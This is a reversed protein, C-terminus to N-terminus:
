SFLGFVLFVGAAALLALLGLGIPEVLGGAKYATAGISGVTLLVLGMAVVSASAGMARAVSALASAGSPAKLRAMRWFRLQNQAASAKLAPALLAPNPRM